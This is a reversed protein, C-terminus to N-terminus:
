ESLFLFLFELEVYYINIGASFKIWVQLDHFEKFSFLGLCSIVEVMLALLYIIIFASFKILFLIYIYIYTYQLCCAAKM